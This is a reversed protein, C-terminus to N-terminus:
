FYGRERASVEITRKHRIQFLFVDLEILHVLLKFNSIESKSHM